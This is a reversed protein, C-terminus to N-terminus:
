QTNNYILTLRKTRFVVYPLVVGLVLVLILQQQRLLHLKWKYSVITLIERVQSHEPVITVVKLELTQITVAMKLLDLMNLHSHRSIIKQMLLIRMHRSTGAAHVFEKVMVFVQFIKVRPPLIITFCDLVVPILLVVLM